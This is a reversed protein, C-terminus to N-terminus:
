RVKGDNTVAYAVSSGIAAYIISSGKPRPLEQWGNGTRCYRGIGIRAFIRGDWSLAWLNGSSWHCALGTFESSFSSADVADALFLDVRKMRTFLIALDKTNM